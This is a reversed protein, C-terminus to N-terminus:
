VDHQKKWYHSIDIINLIHIFTYIGGCVGLLKWDPFLLPSTKDHTIMARIWIHQIFPWLLYMFWIFNLLTIIIFFLGTAIRKQSIQGMGPYVLISMLLPKISHSKKEVPNM